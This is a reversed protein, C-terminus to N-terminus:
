FRVKFYSSLSPLIDIAWHTLVLLIINRYRDWHVAFLAGIIFVPVGTHLFIEPWNGAKGEVGASLLYRSPLHWATFLLSSILIAFPRNWKKEFRTQLYGRFFLEEPLAAMILPMFIGLTLRLSADNSSAIREKIAPLHGLSLMFGLSTLLLTAVINKISPKIGLLLDKVAYKWQSFFLLSPIVLLLFIKFFITYWVDQNFQTAGLIPMPFHLILEGVLFGVLIYFIAYISLFKIEYDLEKFYIEKAPVRQWPSFFKFFSSFSVM